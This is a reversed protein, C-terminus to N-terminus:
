AKAAGASALSAAAAKTKEKRVATMIDCWYEDTSTETGSSASDSSEEPLIRKPGAARKPGNGKGKGGPGSAATTKEGPGPAAKAKEGTATEVLTRLKDFHKFIFSVCIKM